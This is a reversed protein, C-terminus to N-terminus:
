VACGGSNYPPIWTISITMATEDSSYYTPPLFNSPSQCAYFTAVASEDSYGNADIAQVTFRYPLGTSLDSVTYTLIDPRNTGIYIPQINGNQGDDMNLVYGLIALDSSAPAAWQVKISYQTSQVLTPASPTNPVDGFAIYGYDSFDSDGIANTAKTIFRYTKGIVIGDNGNDAPYVLMTGDYNNLISFGSTFDDGADVHLEYSTIESGGNDESHRIQIYLTAASFSVFVPSLPPSPVTAALISGESSYPGWGIANKARYRFIHDRGKYIGSTITFTTLLSNSSFGILSTYQGTNQNDM